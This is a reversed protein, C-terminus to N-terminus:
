QRVERTPLKWQDLATRVDSISRACCWAMCGEVVCWNAWESQADSLKGRANKVEIFFASGDGFIVLDPVGPTLGAVANGARGSRTRLSANPIAVVRYNKPLVARLFKVIQAQIAAEKM